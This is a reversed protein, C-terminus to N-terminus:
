YSYTADINAELDSSAEAADESGEKVLSELIPEVKSYLDSMVKRDDVEELFLAAVQKFADMYEDLKAEIMKREADPIDTQRGLDEDFAEMVQDMEKLYKADVRLLFDKEHRRMMLMMSTLRDKKFKALEKEVEAVAHRLKGMLGDDPKLGIREWMSVVEEFQEVYATFMAAMEDIRKQTDPELHITKLKGFFPMLRAAEAKHEGAYKMDKRLFFDKEHRREQLFGIKLADVYEVGKTEHVFTELFGKQTVASTHYVIGVAIFGVLAILGILLIQTSIRLNKLVSM